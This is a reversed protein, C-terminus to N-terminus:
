FAGEFYAAAERRERDFGRRGVRAPPPRVGAIAPERDDGEGGGGCAREASPPSWRARNRSVSRRVFRARFTAASEVM